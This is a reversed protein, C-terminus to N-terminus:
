FHRSTFKEITTLNIYFCFFIKNSLKLKQLLMSEFDDFKPLILRLPVSKAHCVDGSFLVKNDQFIAGANTDVNNKFIGPIQHKYAHSFQIDGLVAPTASATM